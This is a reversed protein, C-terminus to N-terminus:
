RRAIFAFHNAAFYNLAEIMKGYIIKGRKRKRKPLFILSLFEEIIKGYIM